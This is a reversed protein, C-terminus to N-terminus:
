VSGELVPLGFHPRGPAKEGGFQVLGTGETKGQLLPVGARQHNEHGKELSAGVDGCGEQEPSGQALSLMGPM